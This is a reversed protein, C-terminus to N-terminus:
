LPNRVVWSQDVTELFICRRDGFIEHFKEM